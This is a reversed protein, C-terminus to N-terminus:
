PTSDLGPARRNRHLKTMLPILAFSGAVALGGALLALTGGTLAAYVNQTAAMAVVIPIYMASWFSIGSATFEGLRFKKANMNSLLILMLMAIGVGGVNAQVSIAAGLLDGIVLGALMSVSLIAVGYIIM